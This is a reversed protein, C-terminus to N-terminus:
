QVIKESSKGRYSTAVFISTIYCTVAFSKRRIRFLPLVNRTKSKLEFVQLSTSRITTRLWDECHWTVSSRNEVCCRQLDYRQFDNLTVPILVSVGWVFGGPCFVGLGFGGRVFVGWFLNQLHYFMRVKFKKARTKKM